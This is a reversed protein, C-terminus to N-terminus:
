PGGIISGDGALNQLDNVVPQWTQTSPSANYTKMDATFKAFDDNTGPANLDNSTAIPNESETTFFKDAWAAVLNAAKTRDSPPADLMAKASQCFDAAAREFLNPIYEPNLSVYCPGMFNQKSRPPDISCVAWHSDYANCGPGQLIYTPQNIAARAAHPVLVTGTVFSLLIIFIRKM